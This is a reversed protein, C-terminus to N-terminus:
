DQRPFQILSWDYRENKGYLWAYRVLFRIKIVVVSYNNSLKAVKISKKQNICSKEAELSGHRM